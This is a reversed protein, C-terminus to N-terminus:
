KEAEEEQHQYPFGDRYAAIGEPDGYDHAFVWKDISTKYRRWYLWQRIRGLLSM